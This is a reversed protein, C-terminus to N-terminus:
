EKWLTPYLLLGLAMYVLLFAFLPLGAQLIVWVDLDDCIRKHIGQCLLLGPLLTPTGLLAMFLGPMQTHVSIAGVVVLCSSILVAGALCILAEGAQAFGINLFLHMCGWIGAMAVLQALFAKSFLYFLFGNSTFRSKFYFRSAEFRVNFLTNNGAVGIVLQCIWFLLTYSGASVTARGLATYILFVVGAGILLIPGFTQLTKRERHLDLLLHQWVVHAMGPRAIRADM